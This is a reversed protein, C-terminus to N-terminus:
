SVGGRIASVQDVGRQTLRYRSAMRRNRNLAEGDAEVLGAARLEAWRRCVQVSNLACRDAIEEATLPRREAAITALIIRSHRSRITGASAAADKSTEPDSRRALREVGFPLLADAM